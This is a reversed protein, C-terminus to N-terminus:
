YSVILKDRDKFVTDEYSSVAIGNVTVSGIKKEKVVEPFSSPSTKEWVAFFDGLTFEKQIPAEVHIVGGGDHTHISTMCIQQVGMNPPIEAKVGNVIIEVEPHIHYATAMDTTCLLAIERSTMNKEQEIKGEKIKPSYWALFGILVVLVIGIWGFLGIKKIM